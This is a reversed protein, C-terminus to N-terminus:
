PDYLAKLAASANAPTGDFVIEGHNIIAIRDAVTFALDLDHEIIIMTLGRSLSTILTQIEHTAGPGFGSAPEDLLLLQPNGSLAMALDLRRRTGHDVNAVRRHLANLGISNARTRIIEHIAPDQSPGGGLGTYSTLASEALILNDILSFNEFLSTQQFSRALGIRARDFLPMKTIDRGNLLIRGSDASIEGSILRMLTTKGAGNPGLIALREGPILRLSLDRIVTTKGFTKTLREIQLMIRGPNLGDM